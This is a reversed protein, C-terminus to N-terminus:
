LTEEAARLFAILIFNKGTGSRTVQIIVDAERALFYNYMNALKELIGARTHSSIKKKCMALVGGPELTDKSDSDFLHWIVGPHPGM